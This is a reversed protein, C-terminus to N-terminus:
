STVYDYYYYFKKTEFATKMCNGDWRYVYVNEMQKNYDPIILSGLTIKYKTMIRIFNDMHNIFKNQIQQCMDYIDDIENHYCKTLKTILKSMLIYINEKHNEMDNVDDSVNFTICTISSIEDLDERQLIKKFEHTLLDIEIPQRLQLLQIPIKIDFRNYKNMEYDSISKYDYKKDLSKERYYKMMDEDRKVKYEKLSDGVEIKAKKCYRDNLHEKFKSWSEPDSKPYVYIKLEFDGYGIDIDYDRLFNIFYPCYDGSYMQCCCDYVKM